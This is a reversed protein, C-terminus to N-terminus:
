MNVGDATLQRRTLKKAIGITSVAIM